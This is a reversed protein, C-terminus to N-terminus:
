NDEGVDRGNVQKERKKEWGPLLLLWVICWGVM